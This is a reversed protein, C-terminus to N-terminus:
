APKKMLFFSKDPHKQRYEVIRKRLFTPAKREDTKKFGFQGYFKELHKYPVGFCERKELMKQVENLMKSGVGHRQYELKVQMGRLVLVGNEPCIRVVGIIEGNIRAVFITCRSNVTQQYNRSRYFKRIKELDDSDAKEIVM